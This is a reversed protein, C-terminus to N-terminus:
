INGFLFFNYCVFIKNQKKFNNEIKAKHFYMYRLNIILM